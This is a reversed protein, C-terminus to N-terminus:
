LLLYTPNVIIKLGSMKLSSLLPLYFTWFIKVLEPVHFAEVYVPFLKTSIKLPYPSYEMHFQVLSHRSMAALLDSYSDKCPVARTVLHHRRSFFLHLM